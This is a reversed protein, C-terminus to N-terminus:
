NNKVIKFGEFKKPNLRVLKKLYEKCDLTKEWNDSYFLRYNTNYHHGQANELTYNEKNKM